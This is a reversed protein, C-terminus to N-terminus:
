PKPPSPSRAARHLAPDHSPDAARDSFVAAKHMRVIGSLEGEPHAKTTVLVYARGSVVADVVDAFGAVKPRTQRRLDAETVRRTLVAPLPGGAATYLTLVAPGTPDTYSRAVHLAIAQVGRVNKTDVQVTAGPHAPDFAIAARGTPGAASQEAARPPKLDAQWTISVECAHTISALCAAGLLGALM